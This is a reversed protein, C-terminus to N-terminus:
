AIRKLLKPNEHFKFAEYYEENKKYGFRASDMFFESLILGGRKM